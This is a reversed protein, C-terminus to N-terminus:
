TSPTRQLDAVSPMVHLRVAPAPLSLPKKMLLVLTLRTPGDHHKPTELRILYAAGAASPLSHRPPAGRSPRREESGLAHDFRSRRVGRQRFVAAM